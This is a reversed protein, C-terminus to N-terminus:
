FLSLSGSQGSADTRRRRAESGASADGDVAQGAAPPASLRGPGGVQAVRRGSPPM